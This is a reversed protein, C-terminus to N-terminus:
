HKSNASENTRRPDTDQEYRYHYGEMQDRCADRLANMWKKIGRRNLYLVMLFIVGILALVIGFFVYSVTELDENLCRLDKVQLRLISTGNYDEPGFCRLSRADGVQSNNKLWSLLPKLHCDCIFPNSGLFVQLNKQQYWEEIVGAEVFQLSNNTLNLVELQLQSSTYSPFSLLKNDALELEILSTLNGTQLANVLQVEVSSGLAGNLRLHQLQELGAFADVSINNLCNNSLDLTKINPVQEFASASLVEIENHRLLLSTLNDLASGNNAFSTKNLLPISSGAISLNQVWPPIDRPVGTLNAHSCHVTKASELCDCNPPCGAA